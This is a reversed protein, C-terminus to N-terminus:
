MQEYSEKQNWTTSPKRPQTTHTVSDEYLNEQYGNENPLRDSRVNEQYGNEKPLRETRVNEQYVNDVRTPLVQIPPALVRVPSTKAEVHPSMKGESYGSAYLIQGEVPHDQYTVTEEKM